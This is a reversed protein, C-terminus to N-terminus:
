EIEEKKTFWHFKICAIGFWVKYAIKFLIPINEWCINAPIYKPQDQRSSYFIMTYLIVMDSNFYNLDFSFKENPFTKHLVYEQYEYASRMSYVTELSMHNTLSGRRQIYHYYRNPLTYVRKANIFAKFITCTDEFGKMFEPFQVGDFCEKKFLKGWPYNNVGTDDVMSHIAEINSLIGKKSVRRYLPFFRYEQIYGCTVIDCHYMQSVKIMHEIANQELTDDSDVFMIYDGKAKSLARNRTTSVGANSYSYVQIFEFQNVYEQAIRLSMDTSGDNILIIEIRPYSQNVLSDLCRSLCDEVNYVPVLISVLDM